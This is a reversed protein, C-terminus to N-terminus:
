GETCSLRTAMVPLMHKRCVAKVECVTWEHFTNWPLAKIIAADVDYRFQLQNM